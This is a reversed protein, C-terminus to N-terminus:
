RLPVFPAKPLDPERPMPVGPIIVPPNDEPEEDVIVGIPLGGTGDEPYDQVVVDSTAATVQVFFFHTPEDTTTFPPFTITNGTDQDCILVSRLQQVQKTLDCEMLQCLAGPAFTATHTPNDVTATVTITNDQAIHLTNVRFTYDVHLTDGETTTINNFCKMASHALDPDDASKGNITLQITQATSLPATTPADTDTPMTQPDPTPTPWFTTYFFPFLLAFLPLSM